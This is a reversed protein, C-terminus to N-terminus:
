SRSMKELSLIGAPCNVVCTSCKICDINNLQNNHSFEMYPMLQFPCVRACKGCKYCKEQNSITIKKETKKAFGLAKGLKYSLKQITGMPCFQCWTRVNIFIALIGGVILVMLYTNSFLYGLKDLFDYTGWAQFIKLIRRIFNAMFFILFGIIMFKSKLFNPIKKNKSIPLIVKDFLSGHPCFNGCWYRGNFFATITLGAMIFIVILGLKPEWQGGIAVLVTLIWAFKRIFSFSRNTKIYYNNLNKM